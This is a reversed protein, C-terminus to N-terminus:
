LGEVLKEFCSAVWLISDLETYELAALTSAQVGDKEVYLPVYGSKTTDGAWVLVGPAPEQPKFREHMCAQAAELCAGYLTGENIELYDEIM